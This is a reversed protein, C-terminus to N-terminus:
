SGSMKSLIIEIYELGVDFINFSFSDQPMVPPSIEPFSLNLFNKLGVMIFPDRDDRSSANEHPPHILRGGCM